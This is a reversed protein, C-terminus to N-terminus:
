ILLSTTSSTKVTDLLRAMKLLNLHPFRRKLVSQQKVRGNLKIFEFPPFAAETGVTTKGTRKIKELTTEASATGVSAFLALVAAILITKSSFVDWSKCIKGM